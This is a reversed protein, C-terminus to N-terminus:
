RVAEARPSSRPARGDFEVYGAPLERLSAGQSSGEVAHALFMHQMLASTLSGVQHPTMGLDLFAAAVAIGMNPEVGRQERVAASVASMLRWFRADQRERQRICKRFSVLREDKGRFPTGFGWVFPHEELYGKVIAHVTEPEDLHTGIAADFALLVEASKAMAWPGIRADEESLLGAAAAPLTSGYAAILRTLKLPWIRPDALTLTCAADDVVACENSSLRRGL